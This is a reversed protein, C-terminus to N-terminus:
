AAGRAPEKVLTPGTPPPADDGLTLRDMEGFLMRMRQVRAEETEAAPSNARANVYADGEEKAAQELLEAMLKYNKQKKAQRAADQLQELRWSKHSIALGAKRELFAKRTEAHLAAWKPTKCRKEPDYEEAQQRPITLGYEEKVAAVVESPTAFCALRQVIFAKVDETLKPM